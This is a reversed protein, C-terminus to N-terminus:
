SREYADHVEEIHEFVTAPTRSRDGCIVCAFCRQKIRPVTDVRNPFTSVLQFQAPGDKHKQEHNWRSKRNAFYRGCFLCANEHRGRLKHYFHGVYPRCRVGRRDIAANLDKTLLKKMAELEKTPEQDEYLEAIFTGVKAKLLEKETTIQNGIESQEKVFDEEIVNPDDIVQADAPEDRAM